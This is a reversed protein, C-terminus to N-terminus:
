KKEHKEAAAKSGVARKAAVASKAAGKTRRLKTGEKLLKLCEKHAPSQQLIVPVDKLKCRSPPLGPLKNFNGLRMETWMKDPEVGLELMKRVCDPRAFTCAEFLLCYGLRCQPYLDAGFEVLVEAVALSCSTAAANCCHMLATKGLIDKCDVRAGAECLRRACKAFDTEGTKFSECTPAANLSPGWHDRKIVGKRLDCSRAGCICGLLPTMRLSAQRYELIQKREEPTKDQMVALITEVERVNGWCAARMLPTYESPRQYPNFTGGSSHYQELDAGPGGPVSTLESQDGDGFKDAQNKKVDCARRIVPDDSGDGACCGLMYNHAAPTSTDFADRPLNAAPHREQLMKLRRAHYDQTCGSLFAANRQAFRSAVAAVIEEQEAGQEEERETIRRLNKPLVQVAEQKENAAVPVVRVGCRPRFLAFPLEIRGRRGNLDHRNVLGGFEVEDGIRLRKMDATVTEVDREFEAQIESAAVSSYVLDLHAKQFGIKKPTDLPKGTMFQLAVQQRLLNKADTYENSVIEGREGVYNKAGVVEVVDGIEFKKTSSSSPTIPPEATRSQPSFSAPSSM